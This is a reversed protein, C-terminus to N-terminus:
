EQQEQDNDKAPEHKAIWGNFEPLKELSQQLSESKRISV